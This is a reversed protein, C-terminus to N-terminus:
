VLNDTQIKIGGVVKEFYDIGGALRDIMSFLTRMMPFSFCVGSSEILAVIAHKKINTCSHM